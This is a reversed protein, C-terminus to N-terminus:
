LEGLSAMDLGDVLGALWGVVAPMPNAKMAYHLEIQAPLSQRLAAVRESIRQRDYAYFPTRGARLSLQQLTQGGILLQHDRIQLHALATHQTM